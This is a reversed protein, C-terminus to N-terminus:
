KGCTGPGVCEKLNKPIVGGRPGGLLIITKPPDLGSPDPTNSFFRRENPGGIGPSVISLSWPSLSWTRM